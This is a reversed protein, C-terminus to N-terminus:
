TFVVSFATVFILSRRSRKMPSTKGSGGRCALAWKIETIPPSVCIAATDAAIEMPSRKM